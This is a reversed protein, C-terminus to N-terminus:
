PLRDSLDILPSQIDKFRANWVERAIAYGDYSENIDRRNVQSRKRYFVACKCFVTCVCRSAVPIVRDAPVWGNTEYEPCDPCHPPNGLRRRAVWDDSSHSVQESQGFTKGAGGGYRGARHLAMRESLRGNALDDAFRRFHEFEDRINDRIRQLHNPTLRSAGGAGAQGMRFHSRILDRVMDDQWQDFSIDGDILRQTRRRFRMANRQQEAFIIDRVQGETLRRGNRFYAEDRISYVIRQSRTRRLLAIVVLAALLAALAESSDSQSEEILQQLEEVDYPPELPGLMAELEAITYANGNITVTEVAM